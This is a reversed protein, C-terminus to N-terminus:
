PHCATRPRGFTCAILKSYPVIRWRIIPLLPVIGRRRQRHRIFKNCLKRRTSLEKDLYVTQNTLILYRIWFNPIHSSSPKRTSTVGFDFGSGRRTTRVHGLDMKSVTVRDGSERQVHGCTLLTQPTGDLNSVPRVQIPYSFPGTDVPFPHVDGAIGQM